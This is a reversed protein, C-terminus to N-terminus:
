SGKEESDWVDSRLSHLSVAGSSAIHIRKALAASPKRRETAIQYLYAPTTGAANALLKPDAILLYEALNMNVCIM